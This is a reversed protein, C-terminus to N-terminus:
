FKNTIYYAIIAIIIILILNRNSLSIHQLILRKELLTENSFYTNTIIYFIFIFLWNLKYYLNNKLESIHLKDNMFIYLFKIIEIYFLINEFINNNGGQKLIKKSKNIKLDEDKKIKQISSSINILSILTHSSVKSNCILNHQKNNKIKEKDDKIKEDGRGSEDQIVKMFKKEDRKSKEYNIKCNNTFNDIPLKSNVLNVHIIERKSNQISLREYDM